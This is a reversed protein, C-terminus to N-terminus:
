WDSSSSSVIQPDVRCHELSPIAEPVAATVFQIWEDHAQEDETEYAIEPVPGEDGKHMPAATAKPKLACLPSPGSM